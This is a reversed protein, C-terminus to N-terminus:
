QAPAAKAGGNAKSNELPFHPLYVRNTRYRDMASGARQGDAYNSGALAPNPNVMQAAINSNV